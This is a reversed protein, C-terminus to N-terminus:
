VWGHKRRMEAVEDMIQEKPKQSYIPKRRDCFDEFSMFTKDDFHPYVACYLDWSNQKEKKSKIETILALGDNFDLGM